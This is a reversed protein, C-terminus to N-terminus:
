WPCRCSVSGTQAPEEITRSRSRGIVKFGPHKRAKSSSSLSLGLRCRVNGGSAKPSVVGTAGFIVLDFPDVPIVRAIM